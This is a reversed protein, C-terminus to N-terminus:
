TRSSASREQISVSRTGDSVSTDCLERYLADYSAACADWSHQRLVYRRGAVGIRERADADRLLRVCRQAFTDPTEAVFVEFGDSVALAEIALPSAVVAKRMALAELVKNKIGSGRTMPCIVITAQALWPRVDDVDGTVIVSPDASLARVAPAPDRGCIVFRATPIERRISPWISRHFFTVAEVNPGFSMAGLFLVKEPDHPAESPAFYDTDVGNAITRVDITAGLARIACADTPSVATVARFGQIARKEIARALPFRPWSSPLGADLQRRERLTASDILELLKAPHAHPSSFGAMPLERTHIIDYDGDRLHEAVLADFRAAWRVNRTHLIRPFRRTLAPELFGQLAAVPAARPVFQVTSFWCEADARLREEDGAAVPCLLTLEHRRALRPFIHRGILANGQRLDLPPARDIVLVRM